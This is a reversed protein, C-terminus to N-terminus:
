LSTRRSRRDSTRRILEEPVIGAIERLAATRLPRGRYCCVAPPRGYLRCGAQRGVTDPGRSVPLLWQFRFLRRQVAQDAQTLRRRRGLVAEGTRINCARRNTEM